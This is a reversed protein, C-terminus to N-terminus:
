KTGPLKVKAKKGTPKDRKAFTSELNGVKYVRPSDWYKSKCKACSKPKAKYRPVNWSYGCRECTALRSFYYSEANKFM